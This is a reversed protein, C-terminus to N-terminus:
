RRPQGLPLSVALSLGLIIGVPTTRARPRQGRARAAATLEAV